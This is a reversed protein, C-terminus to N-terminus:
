GGHDPQKKGRATFTLLRKGGMNAARGDLSGLDKKGAGGGQV